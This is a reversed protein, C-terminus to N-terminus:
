VPCCEAIRGLPERRCCASADRALSETWDGEFAGAGVCSRVRRHLAEECEAAEALPVSEEWTEGKPRIGITLLHGHDICHLLSFASVSEAHVRLGGREIRRLGRRLGGEWRLEIVGVSRARRKLISSGLLRGKTKVTCGAAM